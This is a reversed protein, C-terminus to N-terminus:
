KKLLQKLEMEWFTQPSLALSDIRKFQKIIDEFLPKSINGEVYAYEGNQAVAQQIMNEFVDICALFQQLSSNIFREKDDNSTDLLVISSNANYLCIPDGAGTTGLFWYHRYRPSLQFTECLTSLQNKSSVFELFPAAERPLGVEVLLKKVQEDVDLPALQQEDFMMRKERQQKLNTM